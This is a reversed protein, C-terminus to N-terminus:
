LWQEETHLRTVRSAKILWVGQQKVYEDQYHGWGEFVCKPMKVLDHMGWIGNAATPTVLTIEPLFVNHMTVVGVLANTWTNIFLDRGSIEARRPQDKSFRPAIEFLATFDDTLLTALDRWQKMDGFRIYRAKLTKIEEIDQWHERTNM